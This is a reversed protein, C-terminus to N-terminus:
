GPLFVRLWRTRSQVREIADLLVQLRARSYRLQERARELERSSTEFADLHGDIEAAKKELASLPESLARGTRKAQRYLAFGRVVAVVTAALSLVLAVLFAFLVM